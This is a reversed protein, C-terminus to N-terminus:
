PARVDIVLRTPGTLTFVHVCAASTLGAVWTYYGEFDGTEVLSTLRSYRPTFSDPGTYTPKGDTTSYGAGSAYVMRISIFAKGPVTIPLGSPDQTIPPVARELDVAPLGSGSLEFVIRDYGAHRGVRVDTVHAVASTTADRRVPLNCTFGAAPTPAATSAPPTSTPTPTATPATTPTPTPTPAATPAPTVSPAPSPTVVAAPTQAPTAPPTPSPAQGCGALAAVLLAALSWPALSRATRRARHRGRPEAPTM